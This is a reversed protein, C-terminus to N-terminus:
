AGEQYATYNLEHPRKAIGADLIPLWQIRSATLNAIFEPLDKFNYKEDYEFNKYDEMYDIDSFMNDLPIGYNTYNDIVEVM